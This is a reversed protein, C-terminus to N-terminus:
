RKSCAAINPNAPASASLGTTGPSNNEADPRIAQGCAGGDHPPPLPKEPEDRKLGSFFGQYSTRHTVENRQVLSAFILKVSRMEITKAAAVTTKPNALRSFAFSNM